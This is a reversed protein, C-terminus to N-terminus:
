RGQEHGVGGGGAWALEGGRRGAKLHRKKGRGHLKAAAAPVPAGTTEAASANTEEVLTKSATLATARSPRVTSSRDARAACSLDLESFVSSSSSSHPARDTNYGVSNLSLARRGTGDAYAKLSYPSGWFVGLNQVRASARAAASAAASAMNLVRGKLTTCHAAAPSRSDQQDGALKLVLATRSGNGIDVNSSRPPSDALLASPSAVSSHTHRRRRASGKPKDKRAAPQQQGHQSRLHKRLKLQNMVQHITPRSEPDPNLM